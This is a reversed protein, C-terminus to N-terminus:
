EGLIKKLLQNVMEPNAAGKTEKMIQGVLYGLANKKGAKYDNVSKENKTADKIMEVREQVSFLTAKSGNEAVIVHLVEFFPIARTLIDLHGNTFPDFSGPYVAINKM